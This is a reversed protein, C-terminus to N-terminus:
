NVEVTDKRRKQVKGGHSGLALWDERQSANFQYKCGVNQERQVEFCCIHLYHTCNIPLTLVTVAVICAHPLCSDGATGVATLVLVLVFAKANLVNVQHCQKYFMNSSSYVPNTERCICM